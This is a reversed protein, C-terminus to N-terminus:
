IFQRIEFILEAVSALKPCNVFIRGKLYKAAVMHKTDNIVMAM